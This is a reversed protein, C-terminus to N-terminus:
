LKMMTSSGDMIPTIALHKKAGRRGGFKEGGFFSQLTRFWDYDSQALNFSFPPHMLVQSVLETLKCGVISLNHNNAPQNSVNFSLISRKALNHCNMISLEKGDGKKSDMLSKFDNTSLM